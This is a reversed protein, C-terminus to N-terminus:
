VRLTIDRGGARGNFSDGHSTPKVEPHEMQPMDVAGTAACNLIQYRERRVPIGFARVARRCLQVQNLPFDVLNLECAFLVSASTLIYRAPAIVAFVGVAM